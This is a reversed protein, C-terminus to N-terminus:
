IMGNGLKALLASRIDAEGQTAGNPLRVAVDQVMVDKVTSVSAHHVLMELERLAGMLRAPAHTRTGGDSQVRILAERGFVRVEVEILMPSSIDSANRTVILSPAVVSDVVYENKVCKLETELADVRARLEKIYEVADALLSAKDMRSVNPVVSRLTYFRHNLKERRQREAEVQNIPPQKMIRSKRGRKRAKCRELLLDSEDNDSNESDLSSLLVTANSFGTGHSRNTHNNLFALAQQILVRNQLILDCSGLELVGGPVPIWVLTEIGHMLAQNSRECGCVGVLAQAGALWIPKQSLYARVPSALVDTTGVSYTLSVAYFWEVDDSDIGTLTMSSASTVDETNLFSFPNYPKPPNKQDLEHKGHFHGSGFSLVKAENNKLSQWFIAYVWWEPRHFLFSQLKEQLTPTIPANTYSAM